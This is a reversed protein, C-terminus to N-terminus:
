TRVAWYGPLGRVTWSYLPAASSGCCLRGVRRANKTRVGPRNVFAYTEHYASPSPFWLGPWHGLPTPPSCVLSSAPYRPPVASGASCLCGTHNVFKPLSVHGLSQSPEGHGRFKPLYRLSGSFFGVPLEVCQSVPDILQGQVPREATLTWVRRHAHIT